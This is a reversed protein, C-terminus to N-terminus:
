ANCESMMERCLLMHVLNQPTGTKRPSRKLYKM